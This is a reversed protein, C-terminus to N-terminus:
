TSRKLKKAVNLVKRLVDAQFKGIRYTKSGRIGEIAAMLTDTDQNKRVLDRQQELFNLIFKELYPWIVANVGVPNDKGSVENLAEVFPGSSKDESMNKLSNLQAKRAIEMKQSPNDLMYEIKSALDAVDGLKYLVGGGLELAERHGPIDSAIVPVGLKMAETTSRGISESMSPQVFIDDRTIMSWPDDVREHIDFIDMINNEVIARKIEPWHKIEKDGMLMVRIGLDNRRSKLLGVAKILEIQNKTKSIYNPSVLRVSGTSEKLATGAVDVYSMFSGADYDYQKRYFTALGRSNAMIKNSYDHIFKTKDGLYEFNNIPFERVTWIHPTNTMSAALAGWPIHSTNTIVVEPEFEHIKKVINHIALLSRNSIHAPLDNPTWWNYDLSQNSFGNRTLEANYTGKWSTIVHIVYGHKKLYKILQYNSVIGGSNIDGKPCIFILRKKNKM